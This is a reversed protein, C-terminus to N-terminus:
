NNLAVLRHINRGWTDTKRHCEVCLTRGNSINWLEACILANQVSDIGHKRLLLAFMEIHDANLVIKKGNGSRASCEQCTYNDREFVAIRWDKYQTTQRIIKDLSTRGGKWNYHESGKKQKYGKKFETSPSNRKGKRKKNVEESRGLELGSLSLRLRMTEDYKVGKNWPIHGRMALGKCKFSCFKATAVRYPKELKETGCEICKVIKM